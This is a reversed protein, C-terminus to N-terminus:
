LVWNCTVSASFGCFAIGIFCYGSIWWMHCSFVRIKVPFWFKNSIAFPLFLPHGVLINFCKSYMCPLSFSTFYLIESINNSSFSENCFFFPAWLGKIRNKSEKRKAAYDVKQYQQHLIKEQASAPCKDAVSENREGKEKLSWANLRTTGPM